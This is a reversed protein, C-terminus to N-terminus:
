NATKSDAYLEEGPGVRVLHPYYFMIFSRGKYFELFEPDVPAM